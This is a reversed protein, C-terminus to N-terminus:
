LIECSSKPLVCESALDPHAKAAEELFKQMRKQRAQLLVASKEEELKLAGHSLLLEACDEHDMFLAWRLATYNSMEQDVQAGGELLCKLLEYHGWSAAGVVAKISQSADAGARLLALAALDSGSWSCADLPFLGDQARRTNLDVGEAGLRAITEVDDTCAAAHVTEEPTLGEYPDKPPDEQKAKLGRRHCCKLAAGM